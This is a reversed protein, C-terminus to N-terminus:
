MAEANAYTKQWSRNMLYIILTLIALVILYLTVNYFMLPTLVLLGAVRGIAWFVETWMMSAYSQMEYLGTMLSSGAMRLGTGYIMMFVFFTFGYEPAVALCLWSVGIAVLGMAYAHKRHNHALTGIPAALFFTLILRAVMVTAMITPSIGVLHMLSVITLSPIDYVSQSLIRRAMYPNANLVRRCEKIYDLATHQRIIKTAFLFSATAIMMSTLAVFNAITQGNTELFYGSCLASLVAAITSFLISVSVEYGRNEKTTNQVMAIHNTCWFPSLMVGSVIGIWVPDSPVNMYLLISVLQLLCLFVRWALSDISSFGLYLLPWYIFGAIIFAGFFYSLITAYGATSLDYTSVTVVLNYGFLGFFTGLYVLTRRLNTFPDIFTRRLSDLAADSRM